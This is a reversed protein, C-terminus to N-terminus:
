LLKLRFMSGLSLMPKLREGVLWLGYLGGPYPLPRGSFVSPKWDGSILYVATTLYTCELM